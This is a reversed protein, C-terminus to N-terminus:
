RAKTADRKLWRRAPEEILAFATVSVVLLLALYAPTGLWAREKLWLYLPVHLIYIAYSARGLLHVPAASLVRSYSTEPGALLILTCAFVPALLGDNLALYAGPPLWALLGIVLMLLATLAPERLGRRISLLRPQLRLFVVAAIVGWLFAHVHFAPFFKFYAAFIGNDEPLLLHGLADPDFWGFCLVAFMTILTMLVGLMLLRAARMREMPGLLWPLLAYFSVEVSLSWAAWNLHFMGRHHFANLLSLVQTNQLVSAWTFPQRSLWSWAAVLGLALSVLYLPYIRAFRARAYAVVAGARELGGFGYTYTLVFGSLVFFFSVGVYGRAVLTRLVGVEDPVSRRVFHFAVVAAAAVFRAGTLARLEPRRESMRSVPPASSLRFSPQALTHREDHM